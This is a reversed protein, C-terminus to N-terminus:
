NAGNASGIKPFRYGERALFILTNVSGDGAQTPQTTMRPLIDSVKMAFVSQLAIEAQHNDTEVQVRCLNTRCDVNLLSIGALAKDEFVQYIKDAAIQSWQPDVREQQLTQELSSVREEIATQERQIEDSLVNESNEDFEINGGENQQISLSALNGGLAKVQREIRKVQSQLIEMEGNLRSIAQKVSPDATSGDTEGPTVPKVKALESPETLPM